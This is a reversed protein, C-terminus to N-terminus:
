KKFGLYRSYLGTIYKLFSTLYSGYKVNPDYAFYGIYPKQHWNEAKMIDILNWVVGDEFNHADTPNSFDTIGLIVHKNSILKLLYVLWFM